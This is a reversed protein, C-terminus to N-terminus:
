PMWTWLTRWLFRAPQRLLVYGLSRWGVEIKARGLMGTKLPLGDNKLRARVILFRGGEEEVVSQGVIDVKGHFTLTPFSDIKLRVRQGPAIEAIETEPVHIEVSVDQMDAIRCLVDGRRLFSGAKQELRPTLIVGDVPAAIRTRAMEQRLLELEERLQDRRLAAQRASSADMGAEGRAVERDAIEYRARADEFRVRYDRQVLTALVEGKRVRDGERHHVADVVGEVEATVSFNHAPLVVVKGGTKMNWPVLVLAALLAAAYGANRLWTWRRIKRLRSRWAALPEVVGLLPIRRYLSANRIAVTAQNALINLVELKDESVFYPQSSEVSLTGLHGEEDKLPLAVFAKMGSAEFYRRFKERTEERDTDIEGDLESIYIGSGSMHTWTLIEELARIHPDKRDVELHGSVARIEPAAGEGLLIACRECPVIADARNVVTGLVRDLDLTATIERSVDLLADLEKAKNEAQFLNSNRLATAAQGAVDELFDKDDSTFPPRDPARVVELVGLRSEDVLLPACIVSGVAGAGYFEEIAAAMAEDGPGAEAFLLTEGGDHVTWLLGGGPEIQSPGEETTPFARELGEKGEALLWVRTMAADFILTVRDAIVPLIADRDLTAHFARSVDYLQTLRSIAALQRERGADAKVVPAAATAAISGCEVLFRAQGAHEAEATPAGLVLELIALRASDLAFPVIFVERVTLGGAPALHQLTGERIEDGRKVVPEGRVIAESLLDGKRGAKKPLTAIVGEPAAFALAFGRRPRDHIWVGAWDAGTRQRATTAVLRLLDATDEATLLSRALDVIAKEDM